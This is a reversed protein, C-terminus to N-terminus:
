AEDRGFLPELGGQERGKDLGKLWARQIIEKLDGFPVEMLMLADGMIMEWAKSPSSENIVEESIDTGLTVGERKTLELAAEHAYTDSKSHAEFRDLERNKRAYYREQEKSGKHKKM